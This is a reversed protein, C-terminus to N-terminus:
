HRPPARSRWNFSATTVALVGFIPRLTETEAWGVLPNLLPVTPTFFAGALVLAQCFPCDATGEGGPSSAGHGASQGAIKVIPARDVAGSPRHVHTQTVYAQLTFALLLVLTVCLRGVRGRGNSSLHASALKM